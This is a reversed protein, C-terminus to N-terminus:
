GARTQALAQAVAEVVVPYRFGFGFALLRSPRARQSSLVTERAMRGLALDLVAGPLPLWSPRSLAEGVAACLERMTCPNPSVLNFPGAAEERELLFALAATADALHVWSVWQGGGGPPGGMFLRFPPLMRALAGGGPGLVVGTRAVARRVGLEEVGASSAEWQRCVEALFGDGPPAAEDLVLGERSPAVGYYGVASGQVLVAPRRRALAAAEACARGAALRSELIARRVKATWRGRGINEGALNVLGCPGPATDLLGALPAPDRGDWATALVRNGFLRAAKGPNRTPVAVEHGRGILLPALARGIFGTGGTVVVRM